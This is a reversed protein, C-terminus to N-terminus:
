QIGSRSSIYFNKGRSCMLRIEPKWKSKLIEHHIHITQEETIQTSSLGGRKEDWIEGEDEGEDENDSESEREWVRVYMCLHRINHCLVRYFKRDWKDVQSITEKRTM